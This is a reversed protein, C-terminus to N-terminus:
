QIKKHLMKMVKLYRKNIILQFVAKYLQTTKPIPIFRIVQIQKAIRNSDNPHDHKKKLSDSMLFNSHFSMKPFHPFPM